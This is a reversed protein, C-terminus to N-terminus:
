FIEKPSEYLECAIKVTAECASMQLKKAKIDDADEDLLAAEYNKTSEELKEVTDAIMGSLYLNTAFISIREDIEALPGVMLINGIM